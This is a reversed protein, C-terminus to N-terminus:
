MSFSPVNTTEPLRYPRGLYRGLGTSQHGSLRRLITVMENDFFVIAEPQATLYNLWSRLANM